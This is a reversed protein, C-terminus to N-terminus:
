FEPDWDVLMEGATLDVSLVFQEPVYPVLREKQDISEADGLVVLVDNAGTEFLKSVVGLRQRAGNFQTFVALGELQSWYYDGDALVALLNREVAIDVATYLAAIDRDDVGVLHAVYADGHPRAEDIEVKKVGHATKLWWPHYEFLNEPPETYSHVKVWGKIGFLATIRGVNVLNLPESM